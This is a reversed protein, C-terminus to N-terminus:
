KCKMYKRGKMSLWVIGIPNWLVDIPYHKFLRLSHILWKIVLSVNSENEVHKIRKDYHGFNGARLIEDLLFRGEKESPECLMCEHKMGFVEGLVWMSASAFKGLGLWRVTKFLEEKNDVSKVAFYLDLMQRLGVGEVLLHWYIHHLVHLVTFNKSPIVMGDDVVLACDSALFKSALKQLRFNRFLNRSIWPRYHVEVETDKFFDFHTHMYDCHNLPHHRSIFKLISNPEGIVWIDIDGSQRLGRLPADYFTEIGQGKLIYSGFGANQFTKQIVVCQKSMLENRQMIRSAVGLWKLYLSAPITELGQAQQYQRVRRVGAFCIGFLSQRRAENYLTEWEEPSPNFAALDTTGIAIKILDTFLKNSSMYFLEIVKFYIVRDDFSKDNGM